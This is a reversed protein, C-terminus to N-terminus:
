CRYVACNIELYRYLVVLKYTIDEFHGKASRNGYLVVGPFTVTNCYM